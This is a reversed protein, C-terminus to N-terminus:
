KNDRAKYDEIEQDSWFLCVKHGCATCVIEVATGWIWGSEKVVLTNTHEGKTRQCYNKDKKQKKRKIPEEPADPIDKRHM